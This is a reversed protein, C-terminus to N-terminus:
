RFEDKIHSRSFIPIPLTRASSGILSYIIFSKYKKQEERYAFCESLIQLSSVAPCSLLFNVKNQNATTGTWRRLWGLINLYKPWFCISGHTVVGLCIIWFHFHYTSLHSIVAIVSFALFQVSFWEFLTCYPFCFSFLINIAYGVLYIIVLSFFWWWSLLFSSFLCKYYLIWSM